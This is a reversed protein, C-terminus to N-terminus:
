VVLFGCGVIVLSVVATAESLVSNLEYTHKGVSYGTMRFGLLFLIPLVVMTNGSSPSIWLNDTYTSSLVLVRGTLVFLASKYAAHFACVVLAAITTSTIMLFWTFGVMVCTSFAIVRKFDKEMRSTLCVLFLSLGLAESTLVATPVQFQSFM